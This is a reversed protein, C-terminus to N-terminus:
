RTLEQFWLVVPSNKSDGVGSCSGQTQRKAKKPTGFYWNVGPSERGKTSNANKTGSNWGKKKSPFFFCVIFQWQQKKIEYNLPFSGVECKHKVVEHRGLQSVRM